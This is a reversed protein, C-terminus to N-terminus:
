RSAQRRLWFMQGLSLALALAGAGFGRLVERREREIEARLETGIRERLRDLAAEDPPPADPAQRRLDLALNLEVSQAIEAASYRPLARWENGYHLSLGLGALFLAAPLASLRPPNPM